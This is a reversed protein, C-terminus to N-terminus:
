TGFHKLSSKYLLSKGVSIALLLSHIFSVENEKDM